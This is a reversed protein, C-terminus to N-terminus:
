EKLFSKPKIPISIDRLKVKDIPQKSKIFKGGLVYAKANNVADVALLEEDKFYWCSECVQDGKGPEVRKIVETYGYSLGVMQLKVDYQDSWFWPITDYHVEKGCIAAAAVKSQDVANQVSELRVYREYRPNYHFTCDGIAFIHENSTQCFENVKIGNEIELNAKHALELNLQIGVGIVIIDARYSTNDDCMVTNYNETSEIAIVNKNTLLEVNHDKHLRTFFDSMEPATVRPLVREERELVTIEAGSKKLSAAIELGIYGGGIVVVQKNESLSVAKAIGSADLLNRLAFVNEAMELGEIIPIFPRAGTALVLKDYKYKEGDDLSISKDNSDISVITKGLHLKIDNEIYNEAPFLLDIEAQEKASLYAKSLPPKHYPLNDDKDFVEIHGSWGARRLSFACNVGAHSAGIIICKKEIDPLSEM